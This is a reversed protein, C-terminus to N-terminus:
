ARWMSLPLGRNGVPAREAAVLQEVIGGIDLGSGIGQASIEM